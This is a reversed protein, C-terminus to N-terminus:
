TVPLQRPRPISTLLTVLSELAAIPAGLVSSPRHVDRWDPQNPNYRNTKKRKCWRQGSKRGARAAM